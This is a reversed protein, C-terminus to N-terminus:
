WIAFGDFVFDESVEGEFEVALARARRCLLYMAVPGAVCGSVRARRVLWPRLDGPGTGNVTITGLVSGTQLSAYLCRVPEARYEDNLRVKVNLLVHTARGTEKGCVDYVKDGCIMFPGCLDKMTECRAVDTTYYGWGYNKCYVDMRGDGRLVWLEGRGADYCCGAYGCDGSMSETRGTRSIRRLDGDAVYIEGDSGNCVSDGRGVGRESVTRMGTTGTGINVGANYIGGTCAVTFRSRGFDWSQEGGTRGSIGRVESGTRLVSVIDLPRSVPAFAVADDYTRRREETEVVVTLGCEEPVIAKLDESVYVAWRGSAEPTLEVDVMHNRGSHYILLQMRCAEASPYCLVPGLATVANGNGSEQREVGEKAGFYVASHANWMGTGVESAFNVSPYGTYPLPSVGGWAVVGSSMAACRASFGHPSMLGVRERDFVEVGKALVRDFERTSQMPDADTAVSVRVRRAAAGPQIQIVGVVRELKEIRAIADLVMRRGKGKFEGGLGRERGPLGVRCFVSTSQSARGVNVEGQARSDYPHFVPTMLIEVRAVDSEGFSPVLAELHWSHCSLEYGEVSRRDGSKLAVTGTCQAGESHGVLVPGSEFVTKGGGDVLRYRALAPQLLVGSASGQRCLQRYADSMDGALAARDKEELPGEAYVRSLTRGGVWTSLMEDDVGLLGVGPYDHRAHSVNGDGDVWVAGGDCMVLAEEGMTLGCLAEGPLRRESVALAGNEGLPMVGANCGNTVVLREGIRAQAEWGSPVASEKKQGVPRLVVSGSSDKDMRLNLVRSAGGGCLCAGTRVSKGNGKENM